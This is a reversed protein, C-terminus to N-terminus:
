GEPDDVGPPRDPAHEQLARRGAIGGEPCGYLARLGGLELTLLHAYREHSAPPLRVPSRAARWARLVRRPSHLLGLMTGFFIIAQVYWGFVGIGRRLEWASIEAEGVPDTGYGTIMHHLDHFRVAVKRSAPNPLSFTIGWFTVSVVDLDYEDTTFGNEHLYQELAEQVPLEPPLPRHLSFWQM